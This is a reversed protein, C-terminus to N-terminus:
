GKFYIQTIPKATPAIIQMLDNFVCLALASALGKGNTAEIAFVAELQGSGADDTAGQECSAISSYNKGAQFFVANSFFGISYSFEDGFLYNMIKQFNDNGAIAQAQHICEQSDDYGLFLIPEGNMTVAVSRAQLYSKSPSYVSPTIASQKLLELTLKDKRNPLSM